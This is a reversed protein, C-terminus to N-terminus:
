AGRSALYTRMIKDVVRGETIGEQAAIRAIHYATMSTVNYRKSVISPPGEKQIEKRRDVKRKSSYSHRSM